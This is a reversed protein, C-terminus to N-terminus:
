IRQVCLRLFHGLHSWLRYHFPQNDRIFLNIISLFPRLVRPSVKEPPSLQHTSPLSFSLADVNPKEVNVRQKDTPRIFLYIFQSKRSLRTYKSRSIAEKEGRGERKNYMQQPFRSKWASIIRWRSSSCGLRRLALLRFADRPWRKALAADSNNILTSRHHKMFSKCCWRRCKM